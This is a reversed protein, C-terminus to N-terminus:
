KETGDNQERFILTGDDHIEDVIALSALRYGEARLEAGGTQFGKEICVGIGAVIAGAQRCVDPLGRMAKGNASFDVMILDRDGPGIFKKSLTIDYDRGYTFSQVISTFVVGDINKSKSKKAFVIPVGFHRETMCAITIGSAEITLI